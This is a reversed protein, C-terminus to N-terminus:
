RAKRFEGPPVGMERAFARSFTPESEYGVEAAIRGIPSASERLRQAALLMRWRTLYTMPPVGLTRTFREAFASRSLSAREALEATTWRHAVRGHLATLARGLAPDRIAALWGASRGALRDIHERISEVFLLEALRALIQQSGPRAAAHARAAFSFSSQVWEQSPRGSTSTVLVSPLADLLLHGEVGAALYGCVFRSVVAAGAPGFDIQALDHENASQILSEADIPALALDSGVRHVDNRPLLIMDGACADQAAAAAVDVSVRGELVYHFAILGKGARLGPACDEETVQSAICWPARFTAALFVGGRFRLTSLLEALADGSSARAGASSGDVGAGCGNERVLSRRM